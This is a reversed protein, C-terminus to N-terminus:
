RVGSCCHQMFDGLDGWYHAHFLVCTRRFWWQLGVQCAALQRVFFDLTLEILLDCTARLARLSRSGNQKRLGETCRCLCHQAVLRDHAAIRRKRRLTHCPLRNDSDSGDSPVGCGRTLAPSPRSRVSTKTVTKKAGSTQSRPAKAALGTRDPRIVCGAASVARAGKPDCIFVSLM